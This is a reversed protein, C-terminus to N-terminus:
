LLQANRFSFHGSEVFILHDIMEIGAATLFHVVERTCRVDAESPEATGSPHNHAMLLAAIRRGLIRNWCQAAIRCHEKREASLCELAILRAHADFGALIVSEADAAFLPRLLHRAIADEDTLAIIGAAVAARPIKATPAVFTM